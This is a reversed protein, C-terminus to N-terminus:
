NITVIVQDKEGKIYQNSIGSVYKYTDGKIIKEAVMADLIFKVGAFVNDPDRLGLKEQWEIHIDVQGRVPWLEGRNVANRICFRIFRDTDKKLRAGSQWGRRNENIIENMGPLRDPIVFRNM